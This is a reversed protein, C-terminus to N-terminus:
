LVDGLAMVLVIARVTVWGVWGLAAQWMYEFDCALREYVSMVCM